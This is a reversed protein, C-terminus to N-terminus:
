FNGVGRIMIAQPSAYPGGISVDVTDTTTAHTVQLRFLTPCYSEGSPLEYVADSSVVV